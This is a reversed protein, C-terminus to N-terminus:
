KTKPDSQRHSDSLGQYTEPRRRTVSQRTKSLNSLTLEHVVIEDKRCEALLKGDRDIILSQEPHAFVTYTQNEYARVQMLRTNWDGWSGYAPCIILDAGALALARAPEPLQRDFCIMIGIKIFGLDFVPYTDGPTYGPPNVEYGQHFHTKRYKGIIGGDPGILAATNFTKEKEAELFGLILHINLENALKRLHKIYPGNMPEAVQGFRKTLRAKEDVSKARIVENVVYGELAGEPTIVLKAGQQAAKRIQQEIRKCNGAKNWKVPFISLSSISISKHASPQASELLAPSLLLLCSLLTFPTPKM